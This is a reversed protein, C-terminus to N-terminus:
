NSTKESWVQRGPSYIIAWNACPPVVATANLLRDKFNPNQKRFQYDTFRYFFGTWWDYVTDVRINRFIPLRSISANLIRRDENVKRQHAVLAPVAFGPVAQPAPLVRSVRRQLDQRFALSALECSLEAAYPRPIRQGSRLANRSLATPEIYETPSLNEKMLLLVDGPYRDLFTKRVPALSQVAMGTYFTLILHENPTAYVRTREGLRLRSLYDVAAEVDHNAIREARVGLLPHLYNSTILFLVAATSEVLWAQKRAFAQACSAIMMATILTAPVLLVLVLRSIAFSAVPILCVFTLYASVLWCYLMVYNSRRSLFIALLKGIRRRPHPLSACICIVAGICLMVGYESKLIPVVILDKPFRLLKWNKPIAASQRFLDTVIIWPISSAGVGAYFAIIKVFNVRVRGSCALATGWIFTVVSMVGFTLLHTHFLLTFLVSGLCFDRWRGKQLMCAAAWICFASLALTAAYYRAQQSFYVPLTGFAALCAAMLGATRSHLRAAALYLGLVTLVGFCVSASRAVVTRYTRVSVSYRPTTARLYEPEIGALKFAASIAYLPFWGHYLVLGTKSYSIDRFEYEPDGDLREILTNEFLPLGLYRDTPYGHQLITLANISSEAEDVSFPLRALGNARVLAAGIL